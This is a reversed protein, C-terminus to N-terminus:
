APEHDPRASQGGDASELKRSEGPKLDGVEYELETGAPHQLGPPIREELVVGTAVGTGPIPFRLREVDVQEGILM